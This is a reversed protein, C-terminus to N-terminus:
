IQKKCICCYAKLISKEGSIGESTRERDYGDEKEERKKMGGREKAGGGGV